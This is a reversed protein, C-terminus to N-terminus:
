PGRRPAGRRAPKAPVDQIGDAPDSAVGGADAVAAAYRALASDLDPLLQGRETGLAAQAPRRAIFGLGAAPVPQVLHQPFELSQAIQRAFAAWSVAVGNTLHQLGYQGDILLDLVVEVLDPVYTPSVVLDEAAQFPRGAALSRAASAAFDRAGTPSFFAATRVILTKGGQSLIEQEARAKSAGYLGLPATPDSEVYPQSKRGDFVLDTSFTALPLDRSHCAQALHIAGHANAHMCLERAAEAEDVRVWGAANVVAWPQMRDLWRAVADDDGLPLETRNTLRYDLGRWECARALARGLVGSAGLILIPQRRAETTRRESHPDDSRLAGVVPRHQLRIDRRWWGHGPTAPHLAGVGTALRKIEYALATPRPPDARVDFAGSEYSGAPKTLLSNWDYAGFLAWATVARIDVGGSRLLEATDWAERLWRVQEERTCGNHNETVALPRRYRAWAEELAGRLGGPAPLLVRIAEVDAFAMHDNGGVSHLPYADVRHDLFRDSTLYHNVGVIDPPCPDDAIARLREGFGFAALRKYLWHGAVVKGFLLDWTMWRRANDYDAQHVVPPTAYTRGLDETQIFNASPRLARIERMALRTADIQNLLAAWFSFENTTHPHWHGYLASFRATTLPENIPIWDGIWPYREATARAYAAFRGPFADDLLDTGAPGGGHHLLGAIVRIDLAKLRALREDTWSWDLAGNPAVREWLLPYRLTKLGLGALRDLDEPRQHHGSFLTQDHFADVVRNVTCECGGWLEIM